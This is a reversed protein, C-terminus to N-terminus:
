TSEECFNREEVLSLQCPSPERLGLGINWLFENWRSIDRFIDCLRNERSTCPILYDMQSGFCYSKSLAM